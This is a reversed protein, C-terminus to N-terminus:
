AAVSPKYNKYLNCCTEYMQPLIFMQIIQDVTKNTQNSYEELFSKLNADNIGDKTLKARLDDIDAIIEEEDTNDSAVSSASTQYVTAEEAPMEGDENVLDKFPDKGEYLAELRMPTKEYFEKIAPDLDTHPRPLAEYTTKKNIVSKTIVIDYNRCDGYVPDEVFSKLKKIISGQTLDWIFLANLGYHWIPMSWFPMPEHGIRLPAKKDKPRTRIPTWKDKGGPEEPPDVQWDLWGSIPKGLIRIIHKGSEAKALGFYPNTKKLYEEDKPIFTM